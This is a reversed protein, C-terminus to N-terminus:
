CLPQLEIGAVVLACPAATEQGCHCCSSLRCPTGNQVGRRVYVRALPGLVLGRLLTRSEESLSLAGLDEPNSGHVTRVRAFAFPHVLFAELFEPFCTVTVGVGLPIYSFAFWLVSRSLHSAYTLESM